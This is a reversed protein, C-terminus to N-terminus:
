LHCTSLLAGSRCSDICEAYVTVFVIISLAFVVFWILTQPRQRREVAAVAVVVM